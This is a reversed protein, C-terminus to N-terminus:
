MVTRCLLFFLETTRPQSDAATYHGSNLRVPLSMINLILNNRIFRTKIAPTKDPPNSQTIGANAAVPICDPHGGCM